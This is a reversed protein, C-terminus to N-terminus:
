YWSPQQSQSFNFITYITYELCQTHTHTHTPTYATSSTSHFYFRSPKERKIWLFKSGFFYRSAKLGNLFSAPYWGAGGWARHTHLKASLVGVTITTESYTNINGRFVIRLSWFMCPHQTKLHYFKFLWVARLQNQRQRVFRMIQFM